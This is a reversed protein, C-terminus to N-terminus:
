AIRVVVKGHARASQQLRMAARVGEDSFDFPSSPDLVPKLRGAVVDEFLGALDGEDLRLADPVTWRPLRHPNLRTWATRGVVWGATRLLDWASHVAVETQVGTLVAVYASGRKMATGPGARGGRPWNDPGNVLDVVVDLPERLLEPDEWWNRARYDVVRDAGLSLCLDIQTSVAVVLGRTSGSSGAGGEAEEAEDNEGGGGGRVARRAYQILSTGVGGSGGVVLVRDGRKVFERAIRKAVAASAPLSAAVEPSIAPPCIETRREDALMYEACAGVPHVGDFRSVVYDGKKFKASGHADVVIGSADSGVVYPHGEPPLQAYDCDGRLLRADGPALACALVRVLLLGGEGRGRGRGMKARDPLCPVPWDGVVRVKDDASGFGTSVAAKMRAPIAAAVPEQDGGSSTVNDNGVGAVDM